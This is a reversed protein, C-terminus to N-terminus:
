GFFCGYEDAGIVEFFVALDDVEPNPEYKDWKGSARKWYVVWVNRSKVYKARVFSSHMKEQENNWKPRIEFVEITNKEFSYGIDVQDRIDEEPRMKEIFGQIRKELINIIKGEEEM